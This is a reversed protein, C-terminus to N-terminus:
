ACFGGFLDDIGWAIVNRESAEIMRHFEDSFGSVSVFLFPSEAELARHAWAGHSGSSAVRELDRLHQTFVGPGMPRSRHQIAGSLIRGDVLKQFLAKLRAKWLRGPDTIELATEYPAVFAYYFAMAPDAVRYHFPTTKGAGLNRGRRAYGLDILREM